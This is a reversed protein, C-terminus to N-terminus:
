PSHLRRPSPGFRGSLSRHTCYIITIPTTTPAVTIVTTTSILSHIIPYTSQYFTNYLTTAPTVTATSVKSRIDPMVCGIYGVLCCLHRRSPFPGISIILQLLPLRPYFCLFGQFFFVHCSLFLYCFLSTIAPFLLCLYCDHVITAGARIILIIKFM